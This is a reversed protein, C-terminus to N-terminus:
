KHRLLLCNVSSSRSTYLSHANMLWHEFHTSFALCSTLWESTLRLESNLRAQLLLAIVTWVGDKSRTGNMIILAILKRIEKDVWRAAALARQSSLQGKRVSRGLTRELLKSDEPLDSTAMAVQRIPHVCIPLLSFSSCCSARVSSLPPEHLSFYLASFACDCRMRFLYWLACDMILATM